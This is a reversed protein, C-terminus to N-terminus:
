AAVQLPMRNFLAFLVTVRRAVQGRELGFAGYVQM